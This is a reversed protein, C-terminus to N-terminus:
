TGSKFAAIPKSGSNSRLELVLRSCLRIRPFPTQGGTMSAMTDFRRYHHPLVDSLHLDRSGASEILTEGGDSEPRSIDRRRRTVAMDDKM